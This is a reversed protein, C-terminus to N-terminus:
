QGELCNLLNVASKKGLAPDLLYFGLLLYMMRVITSLSLGLIRCRCLRLPPRDTHSVLFWVMDILGTLPTEEVDKLDNVLAGDSRIVSSVWRTMCV